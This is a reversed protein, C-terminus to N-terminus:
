FPTQGRKQQLHAFDAQWNSDHLYLNDEGLLEKIDWSAQKQGYIRKELEGIDFVQQDVLSANEFSLLAADTLFGGTPRLESSDQILILVNVRGSELILPKFAASFSKIQLAKKLNVQNNELARQWTSKEEGQYLDLNMSSLYSGFQKYATIQLDLSSLLDDYSQNLQVGGELTKRYLNYALQHTNLTEQSLEFLTDGLTKTDLADSLSEAAFIKQYQEVQFSFFRYNISKDINKTNDDGTKLAQYLYKQLSKQSLNFVLFLSLCVFSLGFLMTGLWFLVKRKKSKKIIKTGELVNEQQRTEKDQDRQTSFLREIQSVFDM